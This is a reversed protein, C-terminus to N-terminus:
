EPQNKYIDFAVNIIAVHIRRFLSLLDLHNSTTEHTEKVGSLIRNMHKLHYKDYFRVINNKENIIEEVLSIQELRFAESLKDILVKLEAHYERLETWGEESFYRDKEIVKHITPLM